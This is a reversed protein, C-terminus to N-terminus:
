DTRTVTPATEERDFGTRGAEDAHHRLDDVFPSLGGGSLHRCEVEHAFDAGGLVTDFGEEATNGGIRGDLVGHRDERLIAHAQDVGGPLRARDRDAVHEVIPGLGRLDVRVPEEIPM